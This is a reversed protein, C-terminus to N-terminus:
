TMPRRTTSKKTLHQRVENPAVRLKWLELLSELMDGVLQSSYVPIGVLSSNQIQPLGTLSNVSTTSSSILQVRRFCFFRHLFM